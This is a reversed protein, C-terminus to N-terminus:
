DTACAVGSVVNAEAVFAEVAIKTVVDLTVLVRMLVVLALSLTQGENVFCIVKLTEAIGIM